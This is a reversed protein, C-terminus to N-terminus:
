ADSATASRMQRHVFLYYLAGLLLLFGILWFTVRHMQGHNIDAGVQVGLWCLVASWLASGLLTYLSFQGYD